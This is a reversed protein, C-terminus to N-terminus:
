ADEQYKDHRRLWATGQGYQHRGLATHDLTVQFDDNFDTDFASLWPFDWGMRKKYREIKAIPARPIVAFSTGQARAAV